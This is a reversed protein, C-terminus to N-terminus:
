RSWTSFVIYFLIYNENAAFDTIDRSKTKIM